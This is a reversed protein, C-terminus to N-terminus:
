IAKTSKNKVKKTKQGWPNNAKLISPNNQSEWYEV